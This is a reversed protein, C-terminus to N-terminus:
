FMRYVSQFGTLSPVVDLFFSSHKGHTEITARFTPGEVDGGGYEDSKGVQDAVDELWSM